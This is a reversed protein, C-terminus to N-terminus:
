QRISLKSFYFKNKFGEFGNKFFIQLWIKVSESMKNSNHIKIYLNDKEYITREM